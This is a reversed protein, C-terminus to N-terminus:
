GPRFGFTEIVLASSDGSGGLAGVEDMSGFSREDSASFVKSNLDSSSEDVSSEGTRLVGDTLILSL